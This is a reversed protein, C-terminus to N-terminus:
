ILRCLILSRNLRGFRVLNNQKKKKKQSRGIKQQAEPNQGSVETVDLGSEDERQKKSKQWRGARCARKM